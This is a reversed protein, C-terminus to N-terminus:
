TIAPEPRRFRAANPEVFERDVLVDADLICIMEHQGPAQAIGVNFTWSETSLEPSSHSYTTILAPRIVDDWQAAEDSEVVMLQYRTRPCSQDRLSARCALLNRLRHRDASRNQFPIVILVEAQSTDALPAGPLLSELEGASVPLEGREYQRGLQYGLRSNDEAQGALDYIAAAASEDLDVNLLASRLAFYRAPDAPDAVLDKGLSQIAPDEAATTPDIPLLDPPVEHEHGSTLWWLVSRAARIEDWPVQGRWEGPCEIQWAMDQRSPPGTSWDMLTIPTPGQGTLAWQWAHAAPGSPDHEEMDRSMIFEAVDYGKAIAPALKAPIQAFM